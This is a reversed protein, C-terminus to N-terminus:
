VIYRERLRRLGEVTDEWAILGGWSRILSTRQEDTWHLDTGNQLRSLTTDYVDNFPVWYSNNDALEQLYVFFEKRWNYAFETWDVNSGNPANEVLARSVPTLWDTTTGIYDFILAKAHKFTDIQSGMASVTSKVKPVLHDRTSRNDEVGNVARGHQRPCARRRISM